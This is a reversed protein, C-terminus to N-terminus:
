TIMHTFHNYRLYSALVQKFFGHILAVTWMTNKLHVRVGRTLFENWVFMTEYLAQEADDDYLNKQLSCMINYSYSFFFDKTLDVGCLLRKYRYLLYSFLNGIARLYSLIVLAYTIM